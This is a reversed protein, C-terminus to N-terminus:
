LFCKSSKFIVGYLWFLSVDANTGVGIEIYPKYNSYNIIVVKCLKSDIESRTVGSLIHLAKFQVMGHNTITMGKIVLTNM